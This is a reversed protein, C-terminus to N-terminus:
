SFSHGSRTTAGRRPKIPNPGNVRAKPRPQSTEPRQGEAVTKNLGTYIRFEFNSIRLTQDRLQPLFRDRLAVRPIQNRIESKPNEM